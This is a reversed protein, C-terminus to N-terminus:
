IKFYYPSFVLIEMLLHTFLCIMTNKYLPTNEWCYFMFVVSLAVAHIYRVLKASFFFDSGKMVLSSYVSCSEIKYCELFFFDTVVSFASWHNVPLLSHLPCFPPMLFPGCAFNPWYHTLQHTYIATITECVNYLFIM